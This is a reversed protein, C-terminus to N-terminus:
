GTGGPAACLHDNPLSGIPCPVFVGVVPNPLPLSFRLRECGWWAISVSESVRQGGRQPRYFKAILAKNDEIGVQYVRNEFSNLVLLHGDCTYGRSEVAALVEDPGLNQYDLVTDTHMNM